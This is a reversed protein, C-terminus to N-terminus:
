KVIMEDAKWFALDYLYSFRGFHFARMFLKNLKTQFFSFGPTLCISIFWLVRVTGYAFGGHPPLLYSAHRHSGCNIIRGPLLYAADRRFTYQQQASSQLANLVLPGAPPGLLLREGLIWGSTLLSGDGVHNAAPAYWARGCVAVLPRTGAM